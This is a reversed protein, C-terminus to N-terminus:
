QTAQGLWKGLIIEASTLPSILVFDLTRRQKEDAISGAAFPPAIVFIALTQQAIFLRLLTQAILPLRLKDGTVFDEIAGITLWQAEVLLIAAFIWRWWNKRARRSAQVLELQYVPGLM